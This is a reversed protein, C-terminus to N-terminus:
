TLTMNINHSHCTIDHLPITQLAICHLTIHHSTIYHICKHIYHTTICHLAIHHISIYHIYTHIYIHIYTHITHIYTHLKHRTHIYTIYTVEAAAQYIKHIMTARAHGRLDLKPLNSTLRYNYQTCQTNLGFGPRVWAAMHESGAVVPRRGACRGGAEGM